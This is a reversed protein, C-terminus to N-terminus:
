IPKLVVVLRAYGLVFQLHCILCKETMKSWEAYMTLVSIHTCLPKMLLVIKATLRNLRQQIPSPCCGLLNINGM